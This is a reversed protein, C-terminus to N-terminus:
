VIYIILAAIMLVAGFYVYDRKSVTPSRYYTRERTGTFGRAEMAIAMRESKRIAQLLLPVMYRMFARWSGHHKYGRIRHADKIQALEAQFMPICRFGALFGYAWKPSLKCQQILSMVFLNLDTTSTFLLSITVFGFMRLAITLGNRVSEETIRFWAWEMLVHDGKGFAAIMWFTLVFFITYPLLVKVLYPARWGGISIGIILTFIWIALTTLPNTIAMLLCMLILHTALKITPNLTSLYSQNGTLM